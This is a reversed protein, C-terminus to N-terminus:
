MVSVHCVHGHGVVSELVLIYERQIATQIKSSSNANYVINQTKHKTHANPTFFGSLWRLLVNSNMQMYQWKGTNTGRVLTLFWLWLWGYYAIYFILHKYKYETNMQVHSMHIAM